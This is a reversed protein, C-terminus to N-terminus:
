SFEALRGRYIQELRDLMHELSHQAEVLARGREAMARTASSGQLAERIAQALAKPDGPPVLRGTEGHRIISPIGGVDSGVVPTKTALAQLGVQPIGEHLSAIALVDLARLVAPIDERHGLFTVEETLGFEGVKQDLYTRPGDGVIICHIPFSADRLIRAAQFLIEHGKALRLVSIMGVLPRNRRREKAMLEAAPGDPSFLALDIGTPVTSVRDAPLRFLEQFHAAVRPSTTLVCDALKTYVFRSLRPHPIPVDFHRTRILLPYRPPQSENAWQAALMGMIEANQM